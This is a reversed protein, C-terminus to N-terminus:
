DKKLIEQLCEIAKEPDRNKTHLDALQLLIKVTMQNKQAFARLEAIAESIRDLQYLSDSYQIAAWQPASEQLLIKRFVLVAEEQRNQKRYLSVLIADHRRGHSSIPTISEIMQLAETMENVDRLTEILQYRANQEQAESTSHEAAKRLAAIARDNEQLKRLAIGQQFHGQFGDPRLEILREALQLAASWDQENICEQSLFFSAQYSKPQISVAQEFTSRAISREGKKRQIQGLKLM